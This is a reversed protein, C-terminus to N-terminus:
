ELILGVMGEGTGTLAKNATMYCNVTENAPVPIDVPIIQVPYQGGIDALTGAPGLQISCPFKFRGAVTSMKLVFYGSLTEAATSTPQMIVGYVGVIKSVGKTPITITGVLTETTETASLASYVVDGQTLGLTVLVTSMTIMKLWTRVASLISRAFMGAHLTRSCKLIM